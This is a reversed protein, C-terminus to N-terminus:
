GAFEEDLVEEPTVRFTYDSLTENKVLSVSITYLKKTYYAKLGAFVVKAWREAKKDESVPLILTEEMKSVLNGTDDKYTVLVNLKYM